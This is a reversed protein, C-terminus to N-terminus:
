CPSCIGCRRGRRHGPGPRFVGRRGVLRPVRVRTHPAGNWHRECRRVDLCRRSRLFDHRISRPGVQLQSHSSKARVLIRLPPLVKPCGNSCARFRRSTPFCHLRGSVASCPSRESILVSSGSPFSPFATSAKRSDHRKRRGSGILDTPAGDSILFLWPRFYPVGGEKFLSKRGRLLDLGQQVATGMPTDGSARLTPPKFADVTVFLWLLIRLSTTAVVKEFTSPQFRVALASSPWSWAFHHSHIVSSIEPWNNFVLM